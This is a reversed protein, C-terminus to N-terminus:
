WVRGLRELAWNSRDCYSGSKGSLPEAPSGLISQTGLGFNNCMHFWFKGPFNSFGPTLRHAHICRGCIPRRMLFQTPSSSVALSSFWIIQKGCRPPWQLVSKQVQFHHDSDSQMWLIWELLPLRQLFSIFWLVKFLMVVFTFKLFLDPGSSLM